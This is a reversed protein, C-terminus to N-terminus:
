AQAIPLEEWNTTYRPSGHRRQMQWPKKVGSSAFGVTNKGMRANVKDLARMLRTSRERDVEDFLSTQVQAAPVLANFIVGTKKYILGERYLQKLGSLAYRILESTDSSPVPLTVNTSASYQEATPNFANTGVFVTLINVCSHQSRLKEAARTVYTSLAESLDELSTVRRGFSRTCAIAQKPQPFLELQICSVGRLEQILRM